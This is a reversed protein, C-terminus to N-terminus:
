KGQLKIILNIAEILLHRNEELMLTGGLRPNAEFLVAKGDQMKYNFTIPGSYNTLKVIQKFLAITAEDPHYEKGGPEGGRKITPSTIKSWQLSRHWFVEGDKCIMWTAPEFDTPIYKEIIYPQGKFMSRSLYINLKEVGNILYVGQGKVLDTRKLIVPFEADEVTYDKAYNDIGNSKLFDKFQRKDRFIKITENDPKLCEFPCNAIDDEQLPIVIKDEICGIIDNDLTVLAYPAGDINSWLSSDEKLAERWKTVPNGYLIITTM